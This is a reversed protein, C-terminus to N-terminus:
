GIVAREMFGSRRADKMVGIPSDEFGTSACSEGVVEVM